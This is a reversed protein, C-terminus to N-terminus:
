RTVVRSPLDELMVSSDTAIDGLLISPEGWYDDATSDTVIMKVDDAFLIYVTLITM